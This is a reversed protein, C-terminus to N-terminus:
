CVALLVFSFVFAPLPARMAPRAAPSGRLCAPRGTAPASSLHVAREAGGTSGLHRRSPRRSRGGLSRATHPAPPAGRAMKTSCHLTVTHHASPLSAHTHTDGYRCGLALSHRGTGPRPRVPRSPRSRASFGRGRPRPVHSRDNTGSGNRTRAKQAHGALRWARPQYGASSVVAPMAPSPAPPLDALIRDVGGWGDMEDPQASLCYRMQWEMPNKAREM